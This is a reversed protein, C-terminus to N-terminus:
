QPAGLDATPQFRPKKRRHTAQEYAHACRLLTAESGAGAFFSIGIPLGHLAGAPVTVHPYGAVAAPTSASGTNTDGNVLDTLWAPGGTPAVLVDLGHTRLAADIGEDRAIRRCTALAERYAPTDLPGKAAAQEFYEQGFWELERAAHAANFRILDEISRAGGL